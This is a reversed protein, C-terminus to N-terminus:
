NAPRLVQNTKPDSQTATLPRIEVDDFYATGLGSLAMTVQVVGDVPAKRYLTIKKWDTAENLRLALPEGGINDYFLVGDASAEIKNPIHVWASIQVPTGPQVRVQPSHVAVFTRELAGPVRDPTKPRVHLKVCLEGNKTVVKEGNVKPGVREAQTIVDDRSLRQPNWGAQQGNVQEFGGGPLINNGVSARRFEHVFKWHRPLTYYSVAFPSAVASDLGGVAHEWQARMLLRLPRLSRKAERYAEAYLHHQDWYAKSRELRMQADRMLQPAQPLQQGLKELESQVKIVKLMEQKSQEYAWKAVKERNWRAFQQFRGILDMDSTFVVATTLGFEPLVIRMGGVVRETKLGRVDGPTVEWAQTGPPVQPVVIKLQRTASQGPVFQAGKGFWIPLVLVGKSTRFVAAKVDKESTDIWMARNTITVLFPELMELEKNILALGNLRDRGQHGDALFRDSYFGIGKCGAGLATYTMLRIQAPQPGVPESFPQLGSQQYLLNAFFEPTHTQIWTWMYTRPASLRRRQNMWERYKGLDLDTMLPWRHVGLIKLDSSYPMFGDWVDATVPRGPDVARIMQTTKYVEKVQEYYLSMGMDWMLVNNSQPYNSIQLGINSQSVFQKDNRPEEPVKPVLWFGMKVAEELKEQPVDHDVWLTNFGANRLVHLPTDTYRIARFFFRKGDVMLHAGNFEVPVVKALPVPTQGNGTLKGPEPAPKTKPFTNEALPGVELEDIWLENLGPGGYVNLIIADIYADKFNIAQKYQSQMLQQQQKALNVPSPIILKQWRGVTRYSDGRILTTLRDQLSNPDEQHPLVVRAMVQINQRNAKLWLGVSLEDTIPANGVPYVYHIKRGGTKAQIKLYESRQGDYAMLNTRSHEKEVFEVDGGAKIWSVKDTEFPNRHLRQGHTKIPCALGVVIVCVVLVYAAVSRRGNRNPHM